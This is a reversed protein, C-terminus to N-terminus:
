LLRVVQAGRIAEFRSAVCTLVVVQPGTVRGLVGGLRELRGPDTYGLTDDLVLPVGDAGALDAAALASLIALQERAGASLQGFDLTTGALTRSVVRLEEDLEVDLDAGFVLRGAAVIRDALPARYAAYAAERAQDFAEKLLRAAAARRWLGDRERRLRALDAEAEQLAEGVGLGGHAELTATVKASEERCRVLQGTVTELQARANAVAAEVQEADVAELADRYSAVRERAGQLATSATGAQARLQEDTTAAREAELRTALRTHEATAAEARARAGAARERAAELEDRRAHLEARRTDLAEEASRQAAALRELQEAGSAAELELRPVEVEESAAELRASLAAVRDEYHRVAGALDDRGGEDLERELVADREAVVRQHGAVADALAEAEQPTAVELQACAAALEQEATDLAARRESLSSGAVVEIAALDGLHLILREPVRHESRDGVALERREVAHDDGPGQTGLALEQQATVTVTPAAAGLQAAALRVRDAAARVQTHRQPTSATAALAAEASRAAAIASDVRELRGRATALQDRATSLDAGTRAHEHRRRAALAAEEASRLESSLQELRAALPTVVEAHQDSVEAAQQAAAAAAAVEASLEERAAVATTAQRHESAAGRLEAEAAVLQNRLDTVEEVAQQRRVLEPELERRRAELRRQESALAASRESASDLRQELERLRAVEADAADVATDADTLLRTPKAARSTFYRASEEVIRDYLADDEVAGGGGASVDLQRTLANAGALAVPDLSRGQRFRLADWLALDTHEELLRRLHDHAEDGTLQRATPAHVTLETARDRNYRKTVTLHHPGITLEATVSSAVDEGRPQLDRVRQRKTGQKETLLIDLADFLTTKGTENPAEIVTVGSAAFTVEAHSLGRVHEIELRHIRM